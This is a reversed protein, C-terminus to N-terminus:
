VFRTHLIGRIRFRRSSGKNFEMKNTIIYGVKCSGRDRFNKVECGSKREVTHGSRGCSLAQLGGKHLILLVDVFSDATKPGETM